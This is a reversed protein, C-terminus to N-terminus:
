EKGKELEEMKRIIIEAIAMIIPVDYTDIFKSIYVYTQFGLLM